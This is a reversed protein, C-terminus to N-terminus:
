HKVVNATVSVKQPSGTANDTIVLTATRAGLDDAEFGVIINGSAGPAITSGCKGNVRFDDKDTGVGPVISINSINLAANGVNTITETQYVMKGFVVTGFNISAQSLRIQAQTVVLTVSANASTYDVADTPTFTVSLPQSGGPLVTGAPPVYTFTGLVNATANLQKSSLPTGYPIPAPNAWTIVPIVKNVTILVSTTAPNYNGSDTPTFTVSLLQNAGANLVTGAAPTYVFSGAVNATANLQAAGLPTGYTIAAPNPWTIVPTAKSVTYSVPGASSTNGVADQANVTFSHTGVTGDVPSNLSGTDATAQIQSSGTPGCLVVLSGGDKCEYTATVTQGYVPSAPSITPGTIVPAKKDVQFPGFSGQSPQPASTNGALDNVTVAPITVSNTETGVPVNTQVSFSSPGVLGSGNANDSATCSVTVDVAQWAAVPPTCSVTPPTLDTNITFTPTSTTV